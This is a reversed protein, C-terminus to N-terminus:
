LPWWGVYVIKNGLRSHDLWNRAGVYEYIGIRGPMVGRAAFYPIILALHGVHPMIPNDRDSMSQGCGGPHVHVDAVVELGLERCRQWVTGLRRGDLEVIGHRFCTPDVDDYYLFQTIRRTARNRRGLLFAGSERVGGARRRLEAVGEGWVAGACVLKPPQGLLGRVLTSISFAM